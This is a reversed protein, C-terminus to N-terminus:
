SADRPTPPEPLKSNCDTLLASGSLSFMNAVCSPPVRSQIPCLYSLGPPLLDKFGNKFFLFPGQPKYMNIFVSERKFFLTVKGTMDTVNRQKEKPSPLTMYLLLGSPTEKTPFVHGSSM